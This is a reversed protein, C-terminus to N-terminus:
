GARNLVVPLREMGPVVLRDRITARGALVLDPFRRLLMPLAVTAELRALAAGLCLHVGGGFSLPRNDPRTPDFRDPDPYRRPDRNAAALMLVVRDGASTPVGGLETDVSALRSTARVPPAVRLVEAVFGAAFEDDARLRAAHHPMALAIRLGHGLLNTTTDFGAVLLLVLNGLLEDYSFLEPRAEHIALLTSLLDGAPRRRRQDILEDFYATLEDTAVDARALRDPNTGELAYTTEAAVERFWVQDRAPVGLLVGIVAVPLRFAFETMFDVPHNRAGLVGLRDALGDTMRAVVPRLGAIRRGTFVNAVMRRLSTHQPPNTYLMSDTFRRLSSHERWRPYSREHSHEDQVLLTNDRLAAATEAYGLVAVLGTAVAVVQGHARLAAYRPHPDRRGAASVLEAM